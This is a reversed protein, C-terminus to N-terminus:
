VSLMVACISFFYSRFFWFLCVFFAWFISSCSVPPTLLDSGCNETIM